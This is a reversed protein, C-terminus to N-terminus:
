VSLKVPTQRTRGGDGSRTFTRTVVGFIDFFATPAIAASARRLVSAFSLGGASGDAEGAPPESTSGRGEGGGDAGSRRRSSIRFGRGAQEFAGSVSSALQLQRLPKWALQRSGSGSGSGSAQPLAAEPPNARAPAAPWKPAAGTPSVTPSTQGRPRALGNAVVSPPQQEQSAVREIFNLM